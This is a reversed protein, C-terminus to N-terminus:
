YSFLFYQDFDYEYLSFQIILLSCLCLTANFHNLKISLLKSVILRSKSHLAMSHLALNAKFHLIYYVAITIVAYLRAGFHIKIIEM